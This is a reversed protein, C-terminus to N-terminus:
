KVAEALQSMATNMKELVCDVLAQCAILPLKTLTVPPCDAKYTQASIDLGMQTLSEAFANALALNKFCIATMHRHGQIGCTCGTHQAALERLRAEYYDGIQRTIEANAKAWRMTVLYALSALEEQGNTVLAGFQPLSDYTSSFVLRSAPYEGGPFGKGLATFTPQLGYERFMFLEPYWMCSQIEDVVTAADHEHCLQQARQLFPKTLLRGGYNMMVIEHFFAAIKFPPQNHRAFAQELDEFSNPRLPVVKWIRRADLQKHLQPWMGRLMQTLVTTGHYNGSLGGQDNGVTLIVPVRGANQPEPLDDQIQYFRALIMKLAAEVALSGTELNLVRNQIQVDNARMVREFGTQDDAALGNVARILEEELLRTIGGRTNNHTANPVGLRRAIDILQYGPFSHGLPAHYHESKTTLYLRGDEGARYYGLASLPALALRTAAKFKNTTAGAPSGLWPQATYARGTQPLLERLRRQFTEPFFDVPDAALRRLEGADEGTLYARAACVAACYEGGALDALSLRVTRFETPINPM